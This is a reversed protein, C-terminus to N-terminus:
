VSNEFMYDLRYLVLAKPIILIHKSLVPAQRTYTCKGKTNTKKPFQFCAQKIYTARKVYTAVLVPKVTYHVYVSGNESLFHLTSKCHFCKVCNQCFSNGCEVTGSSSSKVRSFESLGFNNTLSVNVSNCESLGFNYVIKAKRLAITYLKPRESHLLTLSDKVLM